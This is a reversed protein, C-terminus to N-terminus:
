KTFVARATGAHAARQGARGTHEVGHERSDRVRGARDLARSSRTRPRASPSTASACTSPARRHSRYLDLVPMEERDSYARLVYWGSAAVPISVTDTASMRDGRVAITAVVKGNGIVELHDIPVNSRLRV